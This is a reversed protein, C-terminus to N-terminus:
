CSQPVPSAPLGTAVVQLTAQPDIMPHLLQDLQAPAVRGVAQEKDILGEDVMEVAIRVAAQATRKGTRTQLMYLKGEQITFEIDQMERYHQELKKYIGVLQAYVAPMQQELTAIPLPTRIGAVVDEGQANMLYEGYFVNEGTSPNRTFAVGTGSDEGLNGYVMAQVNVATGWDGPIDNIKRYRIARPNNWSSFVANIAGRLQEAADEPFPRGLKAQVLAKYKAVLGKWDDGSLETDLKVGKHHKVEEILEEFNDHSLGLVVNSYMQIFRRYSDLAFRRDGSTAALLDVTENNLGLNLITDMMGPMSIPAGSRVSVLLPEPGAGFRKGTEEELHRMHVEITPWISDLFGPTANFASCAETTIIFGPPVPLGNRAMQALNAGKGGLLSVMERSGEQFRYVYTKEVM